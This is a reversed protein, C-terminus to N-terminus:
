FELLANTIYCKISNLLLSLFSLYISLPIYIVRILTIFSESYNTDSVSCKINAYLVKWADHEDSIMIKM